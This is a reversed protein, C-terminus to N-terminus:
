FVQGINLYFNTSTDLQKSKTLRREGKKYHCKDLKDWRDKNAWAGNINITLPMKTSLIELGDASKFSFGVGQGAKKFSLISDSDNLLGINRHFNDNGISNFVQTKSNNTFCAAVVEKGDSGNLGLRELLRQRLLGQSDMETLLNVFPHIAETGISKRISDIDSPKTPCVRLEHAKNTLRLVENLHQTTQEGYRQEFNELITRVGSKKSGFKDGQPGRFSGRGIVDFGLGCLTSLFTGSAVQMNMAGPKNKGVYIKLSIERTDILSSNEYIEINIDSKQSVGEKLGEKNFPIIDFMVDDSYKELLSNSMSKAAATCLVLRKNIESQLTKKGTADTAVNSVYNAYLSAFTSSPTKMNAGKSSLDISLLEMTKYECAIEAYKVIQKSMIDEM